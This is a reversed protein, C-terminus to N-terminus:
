REAIVALLKVGHVLAVACGATLLSVLVVAFGISRSEASLMLGIGGLTGLVGYINAVWHLAGALRRAEAVDRIQRPTM